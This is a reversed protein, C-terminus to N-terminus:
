REVPWYHAGPLRRCARVWAHGGGTNGSEGGVGEDVLAM